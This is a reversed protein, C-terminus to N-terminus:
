KEGFGDNNNVRVRMSKGTTKLALMKQGDVSDDIAECCYREIQNIYHTFMERDSRNMDRKIKLCDNRLQNKYMVAQKKNIFRTCNVASVAVRLALAWPIPKAPSGSIPIRNAVEGNDYYTVIEKDHQAPIICLNDLQRMLGNDEITHINIELNDRAQQSAADPPDQSALLQQAYAVSDPDYQHQKPQSSFRNKVANIIDVM